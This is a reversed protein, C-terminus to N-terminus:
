KVWVQVFGKRVNKFGCENLKTYVKNYDVDGPRDTEFIIKKIPDMDEIHDILEPLCGECDAVITNFTIDYKHQLNNYTMNELNCEDGECSETYTGYGEDSHIRKKNSGVTGVFIQADRYGCNNLNNRLAQTINTDPDVIVCNKPNSINDLIIASVTGYRAGLELVKDDKNIYKSVTNQEEVELDKHPVINGNEDVFIRDRTTNFLIYLDILILVCIILISSM